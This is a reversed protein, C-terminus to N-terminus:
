KLVGSRDPTRFKLLVGSRDPTSFHAFRFKLLVGSRDPTSFHAFRFKLVAISFNRASVPSIIATM